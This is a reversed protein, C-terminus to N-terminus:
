KWNLIKLIKCTELFLYTGLKLNFVFLKRLFTHQIIKTILKIATKILIHSLVEYFLNLM